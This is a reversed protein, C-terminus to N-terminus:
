MIEGMCTTSILMFGMKEELSIKSVLDKVREAIPLRWDEYKNLKKNKNLDKFTLNKIKLTEVSRSQLNPQTQALLSGSTFLLALLIRSKM